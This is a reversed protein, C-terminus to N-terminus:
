SVYNGPVVWTNCFNPNRSNYGRMSWLNHNVKSGHDRVRPRSFEDGANAVAFRWNSLLDGRMPIYASNAGLYASGLCSAQLERRRSELLRNNPDGMTAQRAFSAGFIGSVQQVHHGYEHAFTNLMWARTYMPNIRYNKYDVPFPMYITENGGCYYGRTSREIGCPTKITGAYVVVKPARYKIGVKRMSLWWSRNLCPLLRNYYAKTAAYTTPRFPPEKCKSAQVLGSRYIKNRAVQEYATPQRPKPKPKPTTKPTSKPTPSPTPTPTPTPSPTPTASPTDVAVPVTDDNDLRLALTVGSGVVLVAVAVVLVLLGRSMRRQTRRGPGPPQPIPIQAM